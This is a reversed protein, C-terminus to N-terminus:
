MYTGQIEFGQFLVLHDKQLSHDAKEMAVATAGGGEGGDGVGDASGEDSEAKKEPSASTPTALLAKEFLSLFPPLRRPSVISLSINRQLLLIMNLDNSKSPKIPM